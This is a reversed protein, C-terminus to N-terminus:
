SGRGPFLYWGVWPEFVLRLSPLYQADGGLTIMSANVSAIGSAKVVQLVKVLAQM